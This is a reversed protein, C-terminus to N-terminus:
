NLTHTRLLFRPIEVQFEEGDKEMVYYGSMSGTFYKLVCYSNYEHTHNPEIVPKEGVVGDGSVQYNEGSDDEIDWFRRLLKVPSSCLNKIEVKYSFVFKSGAVFSEQELFTPRVSVEIGNSIQSFVLYM